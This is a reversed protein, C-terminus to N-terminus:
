WKYIRNQLLILPM